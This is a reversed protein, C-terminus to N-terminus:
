RIGLSDAWAAIEGESAGAPLRKAGIWKAAPAMGELEVSAEEVGSSGSTCFEALKKGSVDASELLTCILRPAKGWWIPHGLLVIDYPSLDPISALTPRAATDNQEATARTTEDGYDLDDATYPDAPEIEFYDADLHAALAEAVARTNGTASFCAVLVKAMANESSAGKREGSGTETSGLTGTTSVPSEVASSGTESRGAETARRGENRSCGSLTLGGIAAASAAVFRRRTLTTEEVDM